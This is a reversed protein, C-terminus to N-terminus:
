FAESYLAAITSSQIPIIPVINYYPITSLEMIFVELLLSEQFKHITIFYNAIAYKM